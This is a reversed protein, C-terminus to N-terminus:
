SYWANRHISTVLSGRHCQWSVTPSARERLVARKWREELSELDGRGRRRAKCTHAQPANRWKMRKESEGRKRRVSRTPGKPALSACSIRRRRHRFFSKYRESAAAIHPTPCSFLLIKTGHWFFCFCFILIPRLRRNCCQQYLTEKLMDKLVM